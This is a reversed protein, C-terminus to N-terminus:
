VRSRSLYHKDKLKAHHVLFARRLDVAYNKSLIVILMTIATLVDLCQQIAKELQKIDDDSLKDISTKNILNTTELVGVAEKLEEISKAQVVVPHKDVGDLYPIKLLGAECNFCRILGIEPMNFIYTAKGIIDDPIPRQDREYSEITRESAGLVLAAMKRTGYGERAERFVTAVANM